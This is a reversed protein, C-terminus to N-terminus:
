TLCLSIHHCKYPVSSAAPLIVATSFLPCTSVLMASGRPANPNLLLILAHDQLHLPPLHKWGSCSSGPVRCVDESCRGPPDANPQSRELELPVWIWGTHPWSLCRSLPMVMFWWSSQPRSSMWFQWGMLSKHLLLPLLVWAFYPKILLSEFYWCEKTSPSYQNRQAKWPMNQVHPTVSKADDYDGSSSAVWSVDFLVTMEWRPSSIVWVQAHWITAWPSVPYFHSSDLALSAHCKRKAVQSKDAGWM